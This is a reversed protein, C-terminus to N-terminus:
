YCLAYLVPVFSSCLIGNIVSFVATKEDSYRMIMPLTTDESTAGAIGICTYANFRRAVMPILMFAGIERLMNSLFAISGTSVNSMTSISVGALSYWGLSGSISIADPLPYKLLLGCVIGGIIAGIITGFPIILIRVHYQLLKAFLGRQGGISIGVSFMLLYLIWESHTTLPSLVSFLGPVVSCGIGLLLAGIAYFMMPDLATNSSKKQAAQVKETQPMLYRTLWYVVVASCFTPILFFILSQMGIKGFEYFFNEQQGLGLGMSFILLLTCLLQLLDNKRKQSAPFFRGVVVGAIMILLTTM